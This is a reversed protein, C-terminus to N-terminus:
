GPDPRMAARQLLRELREVQQQIRNVSSLLQRARKPTLEDLGERIVEPPTEADAVRAIRVVAREVAPLEPRGGAHPKHVRDVRDRLKDVTWEAGVAAEALLRRQETDRVPLLARVRSVGLRTALPLGLDRVALTTPVVYKLTAPTMGFEEAREALRALSAQKTPQRSRAAEVSGYFTGILYDGADVITQLQGALIVRRLHAVAKEVLHEDITHEMAHAAEARVIAVSDSRLSRRKPDRMTM